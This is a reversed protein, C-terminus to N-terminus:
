CLLLFVHIEDEEEEEEKKKKKKKKSSMTRHVKTYSERSGIRESRSRSREADLSREM